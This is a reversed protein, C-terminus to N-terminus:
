GQFVIDGPVVLGLQLGLPRSDDPVILEVHLGLYMTGDPIFIGALM